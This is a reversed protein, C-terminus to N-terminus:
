RMVLEFEKEDIQDDHLAKSIIDTISNEKSEVLQLMREHKSIKKTLKKSAITCSASVIGLIMGVGSLPIGVVLGPGTLSTGIGAASGQFLHGMSFHDLEPINRAFERMIPVSLM